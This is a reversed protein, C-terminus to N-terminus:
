RPIMRPYFHFSKSILFLKYKSFLFNIISDLDTACTSVSLHYCITAANANDTIIDQKVSKTKQEAFFSIVM